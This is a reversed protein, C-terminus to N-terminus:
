VAAAGSWAEIKAFVWSVGVGIASGVAVAAVRDIPPSVAAFRDVGIIIVVCIYASRIGDDLNALYCFLGVLLLAIAFSPITAGGLHLALLAVSASVVNIVVRVAAVHFSARAQTQMVLAVSTVAWNEDPLDLARYSLVIAVAAGVFTLSRLLAPCASERWALREHM